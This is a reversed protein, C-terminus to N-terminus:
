FAFYLLVSFITLTQKLFTPSNPTSHKRASVHVFLIFFLSFQVCVVQFTFFYFWVKCKLLGRSALRKSCGGRVLQLARHLCTLSVFMWKAKNDWFIATLSETAVHTSSCGSVAWGIEEKQMNSFCWKVNWRLM